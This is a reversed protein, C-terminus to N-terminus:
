LGLILSNIKTRILRSLCWAYKVLAGSEITSRRARVPGDRKHEGTCKRCAEMELSEVSRLLDSWSPRDSPPHAKTALSQPDPVRAQCCDGFESRNRWTDAVQLCAKWNGDILSSLSIFSAGTKSYICCNSLPMVGGREFYTDAFLCGVNKLFTIDMDWRKPRAFYAVM